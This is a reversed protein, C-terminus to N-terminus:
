PWGSRAPFWARRWALPPATRIRALRMRPRGSLRGSARLRTARSLELM